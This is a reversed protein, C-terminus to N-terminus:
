DWSLFRLFVAVSCVDLALMGAIKQWNYRNLWRVSFVENSVVRGLNIPVVSEQLHGATVVM